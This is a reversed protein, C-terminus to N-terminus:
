ASKPGGEEVVLVLRMPRGEADVAPSYVGGEHYRLLGREVANTLRAHVTSNGWGTAREIQAPTVPGAAEICLREVLVRLDALLVRYEAESIRRGAM